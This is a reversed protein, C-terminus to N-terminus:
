VINRSFVRGFGVGEGGLSRKNELNGLDYLDFQSFNKAFMNLSSLRAEEESMPGKNSDQKNYDQKKVKKCPQANLEENRLLRSLEDLTNGAFALASSDIREVEQPKNYTFMIMMRDAAATNPEKSAERSVFITELAKSNMMISQHNALLLDFDSPFLRPGDTPVLKPGDTPIVRQGEAPEVRPIVDRKPVPKLVPKLIPKNNPIKSTNMADKVCKGLEMLDNFDNKSSHYGTLQVINNVRNNYDVSGDTRAQPDFKPDRLQKWKKNISIVSLKPAYKKIWSNYDSKFRSYLTECDATMALM